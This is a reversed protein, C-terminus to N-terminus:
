LAGGSAAEAIQVPQFSTRFNKIIARDLFVGTIYNMQAFFILVQVM